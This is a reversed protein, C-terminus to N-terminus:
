ERQVGRGLAEVLADFSDHIQANRPSWGAEAYGYTLFHFPIGAQEAVAHDLESDGVFVCDQSPIGLGVLTKNLLDPAPKARLTAMTGVVVSFHDALGTEFLVKDCLQQPKNSCVALKFGLEQLAVLGVAVGEFLSTQPTEIRIYRSRFELLEETPNGCHEGLCTVVMKEGGFSMLPRAVLPDILKAVGRAQLMSTLISICIGCSDVLTGDLDFIIAKNM